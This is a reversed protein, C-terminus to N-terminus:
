CGRVVGLLQGPLTKPAPSGAYVGQPSGNTGDGVNGLPRGQLDGSAALWEATHAPTWEM